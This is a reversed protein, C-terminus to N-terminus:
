EEIFISGLTEDQLDSARIDSFEFDQEIEDKVKKM